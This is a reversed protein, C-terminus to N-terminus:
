RETFKKRREIVFFSSRMVVGIYHGYQEEIYLTEEDSLQLHAEGGKTSQDSIWM